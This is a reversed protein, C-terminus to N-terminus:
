DAALRFGVGRVTELADPRPLKRRLRLIVNDVARETTELDSGGWAVDLLEVRSLPRGRAKLLERMVALEISTLTIAQSDIWLVHERLDLTFAGYRLRDTVAPARIRRQVARVRAVLERASPRGSIADDFGAALLAEREHVGGDEIVGILGPTQAAAAAWRVIPDAFAIALSADLLFLYVVPRPPERLVDATTMDVRVAERIMADSLTQALPSVRAAVLAVQLQSESREAM